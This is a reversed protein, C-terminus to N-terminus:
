INHRSFRDVLEDSSWWVTMTDVLAWGQQTLDFTYLTNGRKTIRYTRSTETVKARAIGLVIRPQGNPGEGHKLGMCSEFMGLHITKGVVDRVYALPHLSTDKM